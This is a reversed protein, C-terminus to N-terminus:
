GFIDMQPPKLPLGVSGIVVDVGHSEMFAIKM